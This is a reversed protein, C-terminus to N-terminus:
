RGNHAEKSHFLKHCDECLTMLNAPEDGGGDSVYKIHHVHLCGDSVPVRIGHENKAAHFTGCNQCTFNDRYLIHTSYTGRGRWWVTLNNFHTRCEDSCYVRRKNEVKEGCWPCLGDAVYQPKNHYVNDHGFMKQANWMSPLPRRDSM